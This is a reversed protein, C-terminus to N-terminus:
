REIGALPTGAWCAGRLKQTEDPKTRTMLAARQSLSDDFVAGLDAVSRKAFRLVPRRRNARRRSLTASSSGCTRLMLPTDRFAPRLLFVMRLISLLGRGGRSAGGGSQASCFSRSAACIKAASRKKISGATCRRRVSYRHPRARSRMKFSDIPTCFPGRIPTCFPGRQPTPDPKDRYRVPPDRARRATGERAVSRRALALRSVTTLFFSLAVSKATGNVFPFHEILTKIKALAELSEERTPKQPIPPFDVGLPDYLVGSAPDYGPRDLVTGDARLSPATVIGLLAPVKWNGDRSLYQEAIERPCDCQIFDGVTGNGKEFRLARDLRKGNFAEVLRPDKGNQVRGERHLEGLELEDFSTM